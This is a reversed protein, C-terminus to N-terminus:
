LSIIDSIKLVEDSIEGTEEDEYSLNCILDLVWKGKKKRTKFKFEGSCGARDTYFSQTLVNNYIWSYLISQDNENLPCGPFYIVLGMGSLEPEFLVGEGSNVHVIIKKLVDKSKEEM